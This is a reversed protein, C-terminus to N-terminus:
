LCVEGGGHWHWAGEMESLLHPERWTVTRIEKRGGEVM